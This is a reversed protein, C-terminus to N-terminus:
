TVHVGRVNIISLSSQQQQQQQQQHMLHTNHLTIVVTLATHALSGHETQNSDIQNDSFFQSWMKCWEASALYKM